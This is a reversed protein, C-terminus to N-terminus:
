YQIIELNAYKLMIKKLGVSYFAVTIVMNEGFGSIEKVTGKGFNPHYVVSNPKIPLKQGFAFSYSSGSYDPRKAKEVKTLDEPIEKIFSSAINEYEEAFRHRLSAWTIYVQKKARTLAVYFLRREEEIDHDEDDARLIPFLGEEMGAIYVISFELGKASHATMLNVMDERQEWTDIDTILSVEQLYDEVSGKKPNNKVFDYIGAVLEGINDLRSEAKIDKSDELMKLYGSGDLAMDIVEAVDKKEAYEMLDDILQVFEKVSKRTNPKLNELADCKAYEFISKGEAIAGNELRGLSVNGIGRSPVNIIRKLALNDDPNVIMTLYSLVDKIEAREYFKIGGVVTYQINKRRLAEEILRSQANTRFLVAIEGGKYRGNMQKEINQAIIDGEQRDDHLQCIVIRDGRDSDCWLKKPHREMNNAVVASAADLITQTSRYNQELRITKAKPFDKPFNLINGLNAGRWSYISQDDDGVVTLNQWESALHKLFEYQATNTDQFEDVLIYSFMGAYEKRVEEYKRLLRVVFMIMDDFDVANNNRLTQQYRDYIESIVKEFPSLTSRSFEEPFILNNKLKSINYLVAKQSYMKPDIDLEKYVHKVVSLSDKEDYITFNSKYGMREIQARLIRGCLSHFTGLWIGGLHRGSHETSDSLLQEVREKMEGATKNTFTVAMISGPFVGLEQVLYAVKYTLVRTKGSGAGALVLVPGETTVVAEYQQDNLTQKYDIAM